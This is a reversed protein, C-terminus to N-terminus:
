DKSLWHSFFELCHTKNKEDWIYGLGIDFLKGEICCAWNRNSKRMRECNDYLKGYCNKIICSESCFVKFGFKFWFQYGELKM